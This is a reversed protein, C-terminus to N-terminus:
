QDDRSRISTLSHSHDRGQFHYEVTFTVRRIDANAPNSEMVVKRYLTGSVYAGGSNDMAIPVAQNTGSTALATYIEGKEGTTLTLIDPTSASTFKVNLATDLHRQLLLRANTSLRTSAAYRQATMLGGIIVVGLVLSVTMAAIVELFTFGSLRKLSPTNPPTQSSCCWHPM